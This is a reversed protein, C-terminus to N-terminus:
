SHIISTVMYNIHIVGKAVQGFPIFERLTKLIQLRERITSGEGVNRSYLYAGLDPLLKPMVKKSLGFLSLVPSAIRAIDDLARNDKEEDILKRYDAKSHNLTPRSLLRELDIDYSGNPEYWNNGVQVMHEKLEPKADVMIRNNIDGYYVFTTKIMAM